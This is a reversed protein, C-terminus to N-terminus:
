AAHLGHWAAVVSALARMRRTYSESADADGALMASYSEQIGWSLYNACDALDERAEQDFDRPMNVPGPVTRHDAFARLGGDTQHSGARAAIDLLHRELAPDREM